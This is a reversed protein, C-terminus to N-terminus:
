KKLKELEALIEQKIDEKINDKITNYKLTDHVYQSVVLAETHSLNMQKMFDLMTEVAELLDNKEKGM